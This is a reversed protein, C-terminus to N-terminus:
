LCISLWANTSIIINKNSPIDNKTDYFVNGANKIEYILKQFKFIDIEKNVYKKIIM